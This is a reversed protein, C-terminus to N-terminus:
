KQDRVAMVDERRRLRQLAQLAAKAVNAPNKSGLSKSLVDRVGASELVARVTKGAIIGTGPSAPRLLVRAGDYISYVEHPLTAGHLSVNVMNRRAVETGKNICSIVERAKGTGLGVKGEKDGVVVLASFGFRRGGKVVKSSRNIHIVKEVIGDDEKQPGQPGRGGRGRQQRGGRRGGERSESFGKKGESSPTANSEEAAPAAEKATQGEPSSAADAAQKPQNDQQEEDPV